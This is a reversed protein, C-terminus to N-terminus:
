QYLLSVSPSVTVYYSQQSWAWSKDVRTKRSPGQGGAPYVPDQVLWNNGSDIPQFALMADKLLNGWRDHGLIPDTLGSAFGPPEDLATRTWLTCTVRHREPAWNRGAGDFGPVPSYGEFRIFVVQEAQYHVDDDQADGSTDLIVCESGLGLVAMIRAQLSLRVADLPSQLVTAM